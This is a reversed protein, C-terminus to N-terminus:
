TSAATTASARSSPARARTACRSASARSGASSRAAPPRATSCPTASSRREGRRRVDRRRAPARRARRRVPGQRHLRQRRRDADARRGAGALRRVVARGLRAAHLPDDGAAPGAAGHVKTVASRSCAASPATSTACRSSARRGARPPRDRRARAEILTWDLAGRCRRTRRACAGARRATPRRRADALVHTLDVGRAKWHEIATTPRSCTSAASWTRSAASASGAGHDRAGGRRRLLLLQRRARAHGRLAQAAGPGADRHGVPCTNLHCARM